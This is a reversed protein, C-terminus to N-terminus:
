IICFSGVLLANASSYRIEEQKGLYEKYKELNEPSAYIALGPLLLNYYAFQPRVSVRDGINGLGEVYSKLIVEIDPQRELHTQKILDYVYHRSRLKKPPSGKKHLLPATRRKLIFTTRLQQQLTQHANLLANNYKNATCAITSFSKWM